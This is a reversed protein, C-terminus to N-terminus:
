ETIAKYLLYCSWGNYNIIWHLLYKVPFDLSNDRAPPIFKSIIISVFADVRPFRLM